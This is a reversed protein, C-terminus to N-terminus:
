EISIEWAEFINTKTVFTTQPFPKLGANMGANM